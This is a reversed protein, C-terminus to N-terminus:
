SRRHLPAKCVSSTDGTKLRIRRRIRYGWSMCVVVCRGPPVILADHRSHMVLKNRSRDESLAAICAVCRHDPKWVVSTRLNPLHLLSVLIKSNVIIVASLVGEFDPFFLSLCVSFCFAECGFIVFEFGPMRCSQQKLVKNPNAHPPLHSLSPCMLSDGFIAVNARNCGDAASICTNLLKLFLLLLM